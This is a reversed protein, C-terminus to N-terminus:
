AFAAEVVATRLRDMGMGGEGRPPSSRRTPPATSAPEAETAAQVDALDSAKVKDAKTLVIRYGVAAKDLMDIIERDVDKIGHRADILLLARKLVARGRLYDNVLYRWKRAVDKPAKAFGYGAHRRPAAGAPRRRRLLEAGAYPRTHQIARWLRQPQHAQQPAVVQRRQLPRCLRNGPDHSAAPIQARAGVESLRDAPSSNGPVSRWARGTAGGRDGRCDGPGPSTAAAAVANIPRPSASTRVQRRLRLRPHRLRPRRPAQPQTMNMEPHRWYLLKQQAITLINNTVWYLQLGAAFPAMIVMLVWPMFGFIKRQMPDPIPPNLKQQIFMTIGVLIPLVGIAIVAPPDFPLFGFANVPTLPDPATLDKIWAAFPQHRMEVAVILV